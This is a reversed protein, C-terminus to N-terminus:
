PLTRLQVHAALLSKVPPFHSFGTDEMDVLNLALGGQVLNKNSLLKSLSRTAEELCDPLMLLLQRACSKAKPLRKGEYRSM